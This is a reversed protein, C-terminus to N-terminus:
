FTGLISQKIMYKEEQAGREFVRFAFSHNKYANEITKRQGAGREFVRFAFHTLKTLMQSTKKQIAPGSNWFRQIKYANQPTKMKSPFGGFHKCIEQIKCHQVAAVKLFYGSHKPKDYMKGGARRARFRSICFSHNKYANRYNENVRAASSFAFHLILSNQLCKSTKTIVLGSNWFRPTKYANQPTEM